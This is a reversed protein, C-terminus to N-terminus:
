NILCAELKQSNSAKGDTRYKRAPCVKTQVLQYREQAVRGQRGARQWGRSFDKEWTRVEWKGIFGVLGSGM